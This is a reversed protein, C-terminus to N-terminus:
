EREELSLWGEGKFYLLFHFPHVHCVVEVDDNEDEEDENCVTLRPSRILHGPSSSGSGSYSTTLQTPDFLSV